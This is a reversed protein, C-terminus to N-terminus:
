QDWDPKNFIQCDYWLSGFMTYKGQELNPFFKKEDIIDIALSLLLASFDSCKLKDELIRDIGWKLKGISVISKVQDKNWNYKSFFLDKLNNYFLIKADSSLNLLRHIGGREDPNQLFIAVLFQTYLELQPQNCDTLVVEELSQAIQYLAHACAIPKQLVKIAEKAFYPWIKPYSSICQSIGVYCSPDAFLGQFFLLTARQYDEDKSFFRMQSTLKIGEEVFSNAVCKELVGKKMMKKIIAYIKRQETFKENERAVSAALHLLNALKQDVEEPQFTKAFAIVKEGLIKNKREKWGQLMASLVIKKDIKTEPLAQLIEVEVSISQQPHKQALKLLQEFAKETYGLRHMCLSQNTAWDKLRNPEMEQMKQYWRAAQQYQQNKFLASAIKVSVDYQEKRCADVTKQDQATQQARELLDMSRKYDKKVVLAKALRRLWDVCDFDESARMALDKMLVLQEIKTPINKQLSHLIEPNAKIEELLEEVGQKKRKTVQIQIEAYEKSHSPLEQLISQVVTLFEENTVFSKDEFKMKLSRLFLPALSPRTQLLKVINQKSSQPDALLSEICLNIVKEENSSGFALSLMGRKKGLLEEAEIFFAEAILHSVQKDVGSQEIMQYLKRQDTFRKQLGAISAARLLQEAAFEDILSISLQLGMEVCSNCVKASQNGKELFDLLNKLFPVSVLACDILADIVEEPMDVDISGYEMELRQIISAADEARGQRCLASSLGQIYEKYRFPQAEQARIYWTATEFLDEKKEYFQAAKIALSFCEQDWLEKEKPVCRQMKLFLADALDYEDQVVLAHGLSVLFDVPFIQQKLGVVAEAMPKILQKERLFDRKALCRVVSSVEEADQNMYALLIQFLDATKIHVDFSFGTGKWYSFAEQFEQAQLLYDVYVQRKEIDLPYFSLTKKIKKVAETFKQQSEFVRALAFIRLQYEKKIEVSVTEKADKCLDIVQEYWGIAEEDDQVSQARKTCEQTWLKRYKEPRATFLVKLLQGNQDFPLLHGIAEIERDSFIMKQNESESLQFFYKLLKEKSEDDRNNKWDTLLIRYFSRGDGVELSDQAKEAIVEKPVVVLSGWKEQLSRKLEEAIEMNCVRYCCELYRNIGISLNESKRRDLIQFLKYAYRYNEQIYQKEASSILAQEVSSSWFKKNIVSDQLKEIVKYCDLFSEHNLLSCLLDTYIKKHEAKAFSAVSILIKQKQDSDIDIGKKESFSIWELQKEPDERFIKLLCRLNEKTLQDSFEQNYSYLSWIKEKEERELFTLFYSSLSQNWRGPKLQLAKEYYLQKKDGKPLSEAKKCCLQFCHDVSEPAVVMMAQRHQIFCDAVELLKEVKDFDKEEKILEFLSRAALIQSQEIYLSDEPCRCAQEYAQHWQKKSYHKIGETYFMAEQPRKISFIKAVSNATRTWFCPQLADHYREFHIIKRGVLSDYSEKEECNLILAIAGSVSEYGQSSRIKQYFILLSKQVSRDYLWGKKAAFTLDQLLHYSVKRTDVQNTLGFFAAIRFFAAKWWSATTVCKNSVILVSDDDHSLSSFHNSFDDLGNFM